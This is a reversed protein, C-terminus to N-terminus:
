AQRTKVDKNGGFTLINHMFFTGLSTIVIGLFQALMPTWGMYILMSFISMTSFIGALSIAIYIAAQSGSNVNSQWTWRTNIVLNFFMSVSSAILSAVMPNMAPLLVSLMVQNILTGLLGTCAFKLYKLIVSLRIIHLIFKVQEAFALKSQGFQRRAFRIPIEEVRYFDGKVLIEIMIKWGIPNLKSKDIRDARFAFFGSTCDTLSRLRPILVRAFLHASRSMIKRRGRLGQDSADKIYRSAIVMDAGNKIRNLMESLATPPHQLDGDMVAVVEASCLKFGDVVAGALGNRMNVERHLLKIRPDREAERQIIFPTGDDSDDVFVIHYGISGLADHIHQVLPAINSSENRTPIIIDIESM